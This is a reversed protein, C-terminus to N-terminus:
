SAPVAALCHVLKQGLRGRTAGWRNAHPGLLGIFLDTAMSGVHPAGGTRMLAGTPGHVPRHSHQQGHCAGLSEVATTPYREHHPPRPLGPDLAHVDAHMPVRTNTQMCPGLAHVDAHMPSPCTCRCAHACAHDDAHMPRPCTCRCAYGWPMNRHMCPRLAHAHM